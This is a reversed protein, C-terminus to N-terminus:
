GIYSDTRDTLVESSADLRDYTIIYDRGAKKAAYMARDAARLLSERDEGNTPFCAIGM